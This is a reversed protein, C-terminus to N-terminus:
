SLLERLKLEKDSVSCPHKRKILDSIESITLKSRKKSERKKISSKFHNILNEWGQGCKICRGGVTENSYYIGEHTMGGFIHRAKKRNNM